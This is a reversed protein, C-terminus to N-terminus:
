KIVRIEEIRPGKMKTVVFVYRGIRVREKPQPLRDLERLILGSVTEYEKSKFESGLTKNLSEITASGDIVLENPKVEEIRAEVESEDVIEGVIEELVDEITVLGLIGGYEDVIMAIHTKKAQFEDLLKDIKKTPPVFLVPNAIKEVKISKKGKALNILIDKVHVFGVISDLVDKYVPFRSHPDKILFDKLKGLKTNAEIAKIETRPTMIEEAIIDNLRFIRHIMEKEQERIAGEEAGVTVVSVVEDETLLSEKGGGGFANIIIGTIRELIWVLPSLIISLWHIPRAVILSIQESYKLALSKPTIEGFVLILLTMLGTALGIAYNEPFIDLMVVTALASAGINVLNNGILITTLLKHPKEKLKQVVLANKNKKRVLRMLKVRDISILATEVGSFFASLVILFFLLVLNFELSFVM